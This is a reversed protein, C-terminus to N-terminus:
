MLLLISNCSTCHCANNDELSCDQNFDTLIAESDVEWYEEVEESFEDETSVYTINKMLQIINKLIGM